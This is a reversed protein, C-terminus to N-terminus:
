AAKQNERLVDSVIELQDLPIKISIRQGFSWSYLHLYKATCKDVNMSTGYYWYRDSRDTLALSISTGGPESYRHLRYDVPGKRLYVYDNVETMRKHLDNFEQKTM